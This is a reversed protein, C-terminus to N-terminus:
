QFFQVFQLMQEYLSFAENGVISEIGNLIICKEKAKIKMNKM